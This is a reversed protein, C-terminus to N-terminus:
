NSKSNQGMIGKINIPSFTGLNKFDFRLVARTDPRLDRDRYAQRSIVLSSILCENHYNVFGGYEILKVNEKGKLNRREYYGLEWNYWKPTTISSYIQSLRRGTFSTARSFHSHTAKLTAFPTGLSASSEATRVSGTNPDLLFRSELDICKYPVLRASVVFDSYHKNEGLHVPLIRRHDLRITQGVFLYVKSEKGYFYRNHLGYVFRYGSDVRDIGNYRNELFLNARDLTFVVSDENPIDIKNGGQPSAAVMAAPEVIWSANSFYRAFPYHWNLSVQPFFREQNDNKGKQLASTQYDRYFYLDGRLKVKAQWIDGWPSVYPLQGGVAMSGRLLNEPGQGPVDNQRTLHLLNSDFQWTEGYLGPLSEYNFDVKPVVLPTIKRSDSQFVYAQIGGYNTDRFREFLATSTFTGNKVAYDDSRFVSYRRLHTLDSARRLKITLLHSNDFEYRANAFVHWRSHGPYKYNNSNTDHSHQNNKSRLFSGDIDYEGNVLRHRYQAALAAGVETSATLYTTLDKNKDIEWFYPVIVAFGYNKDTAYVPPLVGSKRKVSPDPHFFYPFYFVPVGLFEMWAHHYTLTKETKDHILKDSKIQWLMLSDPDTKCVNCPSYVGKWVVTKEGGIRKGKRGAARSNDILLIKIDDFFGDAMKNQLEVVNFFAYTGTEDRMWVNGSAIIKDETKFYQLKEAAILRSGQAVLVNGFATISQTDEDFEMADSQLLVPLDNIQKTPKDKVGKAELPLPAAILLALSFSALIKPATYPM